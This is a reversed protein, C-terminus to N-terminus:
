DNSVAVVWIKYALPSNANITGFNEDGFAYKGTFLIECEEEAQVGYLGDKLGEILKADKLNIEYLNFEEDTLSWNAEEATQKHNTIFLNNPSLSGTFTYGAYYFSLYGNSKLEPGTGNKTVLRNAGGKRIVRLTDTWTTDRFIDKTEWTTDIQVISTDIVAEDGTYTTDYAFTTDVEFGLTDTREFIKDSMSRFRKSEIYKDIQSEQNNYTQELKTKMCSGSLAIMAIASIITKIKMKQLFIM